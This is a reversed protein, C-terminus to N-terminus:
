KTHTQSMETNNHWELICGWRELTMEVRTLLKEGSPTCDKLLLYSSLWKQRMVLSIEVLSSDNIWLRSPIIKISYLTWCLESMLWIDATKIKGCLILLLDSLITNSVIFTVNIYFFFANWRFHISWSGEEDRFKSKKKM